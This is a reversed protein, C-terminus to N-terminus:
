CKKAQHKGKAQTAVSVPQKIKIAAPRNKRFEANMVFSSDSFLEEARARRAKRISARADNMMLQM